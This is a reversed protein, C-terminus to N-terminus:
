VVAQIRYNVTLTQGNPVAIGGSIVDRITMFYYTTNYKFGKLYLGLENVTISAGSANAFDRTLTFQSTSADSAPGGFAMAGYQLQGAGSGHAIPTQVKYDTITVANTGTGVIIGYNTDTSAADAAFMLNSEHIARNTNGTDTVNINAINEWVQNMQIWLMLLFQQVFSKSKIVRQNTIKGDKDKVILELVASVEGPELVHPIWEEKLIGLKPELKVEAKM